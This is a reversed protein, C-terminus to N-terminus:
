HERKTNKIISSLILMIEKSENILWNIESQEEVGNIM